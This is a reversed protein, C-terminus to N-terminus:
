KQIESNSLAAKKLKTVAADLSETPEIINYAGWFDPDFFASVKDSFAENKTFSEKNPFPNVGQDERDTMVM